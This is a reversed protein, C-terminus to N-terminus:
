RRVTWYIYQTTGGSNDHKKIAVTINTAGVTGTVFEGSTIATLSLGTPTTNLGHAITGGDAVSTKGFRMDPIATDYETAAYVSSNHNWYVASGTGSFAVSGVPTTGKFEVTNDEYFMVSSTNNYIGVKAEATSDINLLKNGSVFCYGCKEMEIGASTTLYDAETFLINGSIDSHQAQEVYISGGYLYNGKIHVPSRAVSTLMEVSIGSGEVQSEGGGITTYIRNGAILGDKGNQDPTPTTHFDVSIAPKAGCRIKNNGITFGNTGQILIGFAIDAAAGSVDLEGNLIQIDETGESAKVGCGGATLTARWNNLIINKSYAMYYPICSQPTTPNSIALAKTNEISGNQVYLFYFGGGNTSTDILCDSVSVNTAYKVGIELSHAVLDGTGKDRVRVGNINIDKAFRVVLASKDINDFVIDSVKIDEIYGTGTYTDGSTFDGTVRIGESLIDKWLGGKVAAHGATINLLANSTESEITETALIVTNTITCGTFDFRVGAIASTVKTNWNYTSGPTGKVIGGSTLSSAAKQIMPGMDTTGPTTNVGFWALRASKLGAVAGTGTCSFVQYDGAEFPGNITLTKGTAVSYIVGNPVNLTTTVTKDTSITYTGLVLDDMRVDEYIKTTYGSKSVNIDYTQDANYDFNDIYFYFSGDSASTVGTIAATATFTDYISAVTSTNALTVAITAGSIIKGNGDRSTGAYKWRM